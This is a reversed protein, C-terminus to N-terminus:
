PEAVSEHAATNPKQVLSGDSSDNSPVEKAVTGGYTSAEGKKIDLEDDEGMDGWNEKTLWTKSWGKALQRERSARRLRKAEAGTLHLYLEMGFIHLLLALMLTMGFTVRIAAAIEHIRPIGQENPVMYLNARVAVTTDPSDACQPYFVQALNPGVQGLIHDITHCQMPMYFGGVNSIIQIASGQILRQTVIIFAYFWARLMWARHQDIQLRKINIYALLLSVITMSAVVYVLARVELSGGMATDSVLCAGINGVLLLLMLIYGAVRHWLMFKYRIIPLFQFPLLFGIPMVCALHMIMGVRRFGHSQSEWDGTAIKAERYAGDYDLYMARSACFGLAGLGFIIWLPFNYGRQFGLPNYIRRVFAVFSNPAEKGHSNYYFPMVPPHRRYSFHHLSNAREDSNSLGSINPTYYHNISNTSTKFKIIFSHNPRHV